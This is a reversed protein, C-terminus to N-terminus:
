EEEEFAAADKTHIRLVQRYPDAYRWCPGGDVPLAEHTPPEAGETPPAEEILDGSEPLVAVGGFRYAGVAIQFDFSVVEVIRGDEDEDFSTTRIPLARVNPTTQNGRRLTVTVGGANLLSDFAGAIAATVSNAM